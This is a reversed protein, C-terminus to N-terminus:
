KRVCIHEYRAMSANNVMALEECRKIAEEETDFEKNGQNDAGYVRYVWKVEPEKQEHEEKWKQCISIIKSAEFVNGKGKEHFVCKIYLPCLTDCDNERCICNVIELVEEATLDSEALDSFDIIKYGKTAYYERSCCRVTLDNDLRYCESATYYETLTTLKGGGVGCYGIKDLNRLLEEAEQKTHCCIVMGPKIEKFRMSM